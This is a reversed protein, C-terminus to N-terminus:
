GATRLLGVQDARARNGQDGFNLVLISADEEVAEAVPRGVDFVVQGLQTDGPKIQKAEWLFSDTAVGNLVDFREKYREGGVELEVQEGFDDFRESREGTNTVALTAIVFRGERSRAPDKYDGRVTGATAVDSLKATLSDLELREGPDAVVYETGAAACTGGGGIAAELEETGCRVEDPDVAAAEAVLEEIPAGEPANAAGTAGTAGTPGSAGTTATSTPAGPAEAEDDGGCAALALATAALACIATLRVM